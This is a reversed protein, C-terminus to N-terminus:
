KTMDRQWIFAAFVTLSSYRFNVVGFKEITKIMSKGTRLLMIFYKYRYDAHHDFFM